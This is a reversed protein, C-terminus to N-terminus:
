RTCVKLHISKVPQHKAPPKQKKNKPKKGKDRCRKKNKNKGRCGRKRKGGKKNKDQKKKDVGEGATDNQVPGLLEGSKDKIEKVKTKLEFKCSENRSTPLNYRVEM